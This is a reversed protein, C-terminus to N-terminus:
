VVLPTQANATITQLVMCQADKTPQLAQQRLMVQALQTIDEGAGSTLLGKAILPSDAYSYFLKICLATPM